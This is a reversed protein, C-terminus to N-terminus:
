RLTGLPRRRGTEDHAAREIRAMRRAEALERLRWFFDRRAALLVVITAAGLVALVAPDAFFRSIADLTHV